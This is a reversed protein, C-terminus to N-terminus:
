RDKKREKDPGYSRELIVYRGEAVVKSRLGCFNLGDTHMVIADDSVEDNDVLEQLKKILQYLRM